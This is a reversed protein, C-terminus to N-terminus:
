LLRGIYIICQSDTDCYRSVTVALRKGIILIREVNSEATFKCCDNGVIDLCVSTEYM